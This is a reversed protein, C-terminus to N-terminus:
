LRIGWLGARHFQSLYILEQAKNQSINFLNSDNGVVWDNLDDIYSEIDIWLDDFDSPAHNPSWFGNDVGLSEFYFGLEDYSVEAEKFNQSATGISVRLMLLARAIVSINELSDKESEDFISHEQDFPSTYTLFKLLTSDAIGLVDMSNEICRNYNIRRGLLEQIQSHLTTFFKRLLYRDLNSFRDSLLPSIAFWFESLKPIVEDLRIDYEYNLLKQPRYTVENRAERDDKYRKVDFNWSVLWDRIIKNSLSSKANPHFGESWDKFSKGKVTFIELLNTDSYASPNTWKELASWTFQHTSDRGTGPNKQISGDSYVALHQNQFIGVGQSALFSMTARLEAYYGLHISTHKNGSVLSSISRALYGWGNISHVLSSAALYTELHKKPISYVRDNRIHNRVARISNSALRNFEVLLLEEKLYDNKISRCGNVVAERSANKVFEHLRM